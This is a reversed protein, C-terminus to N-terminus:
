LLMQDKYLNSGLKDKTCEHTYHGIVNYKFCRIGSRGCSDENNRKCVNYWPITAGGMPGNRVNVPRPPTM